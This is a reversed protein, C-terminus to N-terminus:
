MLDMEKWSIEKRFDQEKLVENECLNWKEHFGNKGKVHTFCLQLMSQM